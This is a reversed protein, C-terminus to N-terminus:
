VYDTNEKYYLEASIWGLVFGLGIVTVALIKKM